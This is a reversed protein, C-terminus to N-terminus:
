PGAKAGKSGHTNYVGCDGRYLFSVHEGKFAASCNLQTRLKGSAIQIRPSNRDPTRNEQQAVHCVRSGSGNASSFCDETICRKDEAPVKCSFLERLSAGNLRPLPEELEALEFDIGEFAASM